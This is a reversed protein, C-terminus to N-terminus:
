KYYAARLAEPEHRLSEVVMESFLEQFRRIEEAQSRLNENAVMVEIAQMTGIVYSHYWSSHRGRHPLEIKNWDGDLDLKFKEAIEQAAETWSNLGAKDHGAKNSAVHHVEIPLSRAYEAQEERRRRYVERRAEDDERARSLEIQRRDKEKQQCMQCQSRGLPIEGGCHCLNHRDRQRELNAQRTASLRSDTDIREAQRGGEEARRRAVERVEADRRQDADRQEALRRHVDSANDVM